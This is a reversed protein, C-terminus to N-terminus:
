WCFSSVGVAAGAGAPQAGLLCAPACSWRSNRGSTGRVVLLWCIRIRAAVAGRPACTHRAGTPVVCCPIYICMIYIHIHDGEGVGVKKSHKPEHLSM